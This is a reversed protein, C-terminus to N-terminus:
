KERHMNRQPGPHPVEVAAYVSPEPKMRALIKKSNNSSGSARSQIPGVNQDSLWSLQRSDLNPALPAPAEDAWLDFARETINRPKSPASNSVAAVNAEEKIKEMASRMMAAKVIRQKKPSSPNKM